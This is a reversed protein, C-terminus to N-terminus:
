RKPRWIERNQSSNDEPTDSQRTLMQGIIANEKDPKTSFPMKSEEILLNGQGTDIYILLGKILQTLVEEKRTKKNYAYQAYQLLIEQSQQQTLHNQKTTKMQTQPTKFDEPQNEDFHFFIQSFPDIPPNKARLFLNNIEQITNLLCIKIKQESSTLLAFTNWPKLPSIEYCSLWSKYKELNEITIKGKIIKGRIEKQEAHSLDEIFTKFFYSAQNETPNNIKEIIIRSLFRILDNTNNPYENAQRVDDILQNKALIERIKGLKSIFEKEEMINRPMLKTIKMDTKKIEELQEPDPLVLEGNENKKLNLALDDIIHNKLFLFVAVYLIENIHAPQLGKMIQSIAMYPGLAFYGPIIVLGNLLESSKVYTNQLGKCELFSRTKVSSLFMRTENSRERLDRISRQNCVCLTLIKLEWSDIYHKIRLAFHGKESAFRMVMNYCGFFDNEHIPSFSYNLFQFIILSINQINKEDRSQTLMPLISNIMQYLNHLYILHQSASLGALELSVTKLVEKKREKPM